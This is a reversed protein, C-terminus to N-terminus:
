LRHVVSPFACFVTELSWAGLIGAVNMTKTGDNSTVMSDMGSPTVSSLAHLFVVGLVSAVLLWYFVGRFLSAAVDLAAHLAHMTVVLVVLAVALLCAVLRPSM